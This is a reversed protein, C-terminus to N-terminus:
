MGRTRPRPEKPPACAAAFKQYDRRRRAREARLVRELAASRESADLYEVTVDGDRVAGLLDQWSTLTRILGSYKGGQPTLELVYRLRKCDKRLAHLEEKDDPNSLVAPLRTNVRSSLRKVAKEIRMEARQTEGADQADPCLLPLRRISAAAKLASKARRRRSKEARRRVPDLSRGTQYDSLRALVTDLDRVKASRRMLRELRELLRKTKRRERFEKPLSTVSADVRRVATRLDHVNEASPEELFADLRKRLSEVRERHRELPPHLASL